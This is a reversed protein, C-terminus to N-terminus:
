DSRLLGFVCFLHDNISFQVQWNLSHMHNGDDEVIRKPYIYSLEREIQEYTAVIQNKTRFGRNTSQVKVKDHLVKCHKELPGDDSREQVRKNVRQLQIEVKSTTDYCCYTRSWFCRMELCKFEEKPLGPERKEHKENQPCCIQPQINGFADM